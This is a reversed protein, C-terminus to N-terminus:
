GSRMWARNLSCGGHILCSKLMSNTIRVALSFRMPQIKGVNLPFAAQATEVYRLRHAVVDRM